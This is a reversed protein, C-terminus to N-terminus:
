RVRDSSVIWSYTGCKNNYYDMNHMCIKICKM